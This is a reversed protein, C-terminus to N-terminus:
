TKTQGRSCVNCTDVLSKLIDIINRFAVQNALWLVISIDTKLNLLNIKYM